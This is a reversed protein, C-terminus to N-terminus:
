CEVDAISIEKGVCVGFDLAALAPPKPAHGGHFFCREYECKSRSTTPTKRDPEEEEVTDSELQKEETTSRESKLTYFRVFIWFRLRYM